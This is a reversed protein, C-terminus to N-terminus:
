PGFLGIVLSHIPATDMLSQRLAPDFRLTTLGVMLVLTAVPVGAIAVPRWRGFLRSSAITTTVAFALVDVLGAATHLGEARSTRIGVVMIGVFACGGAIVLAIKQLSAGGRALMMTTRRAFLGVVVGTVVAFAAFSVGALAHHHTTKRLLAGFMSLLALELVSWWLVGLALLSAQEGLLLRLGIRARRLGAVAAVALPTSVASLVIWQELARSASGDDGMRLAPPLSSAIASLVGGAVIFGLRMVISAGDSEPEPEQALRELPPQGTM